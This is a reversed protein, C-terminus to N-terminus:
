HRPRPQLGPHLAGRIARAAQAHPGAVGGEGGGHLRQRRPNRPRKTRGGENQCLFFNLMNVFLMCIMAYPTGFVFVFFFCYFCFVRWFALIRPPTM